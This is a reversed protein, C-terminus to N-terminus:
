EITLTREGYHGWPRTIDPTFPMYNWYYVGVRRYNGNGQAVLVLGKPVSDITTVKALTSQYEKMPTIIEVFTLVTTPSPDDQETDFVIPANRAAPLRDWARATIKLTAASVVGYPADPSVRQVTCEEITADSRVANLRVDSWLKAVVPGLVSAWSWSPALYTECRKTKSAPVWLLQLPLLPGCWLGALYKPRDLEPPPPLFPSIERAVGSIAPLKDRPFSLSRATYDAIIKYWLMIAPWDHETIRWKEWGDSRLATMESTNHRRLRDTQPFVSPGLDKMEQRLTSNASIDYTTTLCSWRM